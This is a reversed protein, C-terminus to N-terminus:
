TYSNSKKLSEEDIRIESILYVSFAQNKVSLKPNMLFMIAKLKQKTCDSYNHYYKVLSEETWSKSFHVKIKTISTFCILM